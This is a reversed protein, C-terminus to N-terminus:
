EIVVSGGLLGGVNIGTITIVTLSANKFAHKFIVSRETCGKARATRIYDSRIVELMAGRTYRLFGASYPISLSLVPLALAKLSGPTEAVVTFWGLWVIFILMFIVGTLFVPMSAFLISTATLTRDIVSNQKVACLVGAPVGILIALGLSLFTVKMTVPWRILIESMVDKNTYYSRGFNGQVLDILYRVYKVPLPDYYGIQQNYDEVQEPSAMEGFKIRGPNAPTLSVLIFIFFIVAMFTPILMLLRKAAYKLM